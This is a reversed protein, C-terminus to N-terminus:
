CNTFLYNNKHIKIKAESNLKKGILARTKCLLNAYLMFLCQRLDQCVYVQAKLRRKQQAQVECDLSLFQLHQWSSKSLKTAKLLHHISKCHMAKTLARINEAGKM